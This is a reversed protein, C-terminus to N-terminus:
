EEASEILEFAYKVLDSIDKYEKYKKDTIYATDKKKAYDGQIVIKDGAWRGSVAELAKKIEMFEKKTKNKGSWNKFKKKNNIDQRIPNELDGGGRGNSNCLLVMFGFSCNETMAKEWLKAGGLTFIEKKTVNYIVHYQGM